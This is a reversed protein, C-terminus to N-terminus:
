SKRDGDGLRCSNKGTYEIMGIQKTISGIITGNRDCGNTSSRWVLEYPICTGRSIRQCAKCGPSVSDRHGVSIIACWGNGTCGDGLRCSNKGTYKIMRIQQTMSSIIAGNGDCSNTTNCWVLIYPAITCRDIRQCTECGPSVSDRHGVSIIACWGNGTCGDGLRCSNKGTYEIMGIQKTISGIITGNRDCGNTSSRWELEYPICTGRSIRQCTQCGPSISDRHGISIVTGWGDGTCGDGLRCCNKGTYKIMRIQQAISGIITGNRDCGNTSSSRVFVGPICTGCHIWQCAKCGPSVSDRHGISIITGWGNGTCGYGLRCCNKGTYKIM